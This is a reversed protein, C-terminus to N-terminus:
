QQTTGNLRHLTVNTEGAQQLLAGYKFGEGSRHLLVKRVQADTAARDLLGGVAENRMRTATRKNSVGLIGLAASPPALALSALGPIAAAFAMGAVGTAIATNSARRLNTASRLRRRVDKSVGAKKLARNLQVAQRNAQFNGAAADDVSSSMFGIVLVLPLFRTTTM